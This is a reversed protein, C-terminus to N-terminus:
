IFFNLLSLININIHRNDRNLILRIDNYKYEITIEIVYIIILSLSSQENVLWYVYTDRKFLFREIKSQHVHILIDCM